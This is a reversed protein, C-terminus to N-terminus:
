SEAQLDVVINGFREIAEDDSMPPSVAIAKYLASAIKATNAARDRSRLRRTADEAVVIAQRLTERNPASHNEFGMVEALSWDLAAALKILTGVTPNATNRVAGEGMGGDREIRTIRKGLEAARREIRDQFDANSWGGAMECPLASRTEHALPYSEAKLGQRRFDKRCFPRRHFM